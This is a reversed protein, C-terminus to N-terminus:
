KKDLNLERLETWMDKPAPPTGGDGDRKTKGPGSGKFEEVQAELEAIREAQKTTVHKLRDYVAARHFIQANLLAHEQESRPQTTLLARGEKLLKTAEPDNPDEQFDPNKEELEKFVRDRM